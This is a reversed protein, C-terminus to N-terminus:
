KNGDWHSWDCTIARYASVVMCPMGEVEIIEYSVSYVPLVSGGDSASGGCSTLLLVALIILLVIFAWVSASTPAAYSNWWNKM